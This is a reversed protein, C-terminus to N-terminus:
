LGNVIVKALSDAQNEKKIQNALNVGDKCSLVPLRSHNVVQQTFPGIFFQAHKYDLSANIAILDVSMQESLELVKSAYNSCTYKEKTCTVGKNIISAIVERLEDKPFTPITEKADTRLAAIHIAIAEFGFLSDILEYKSKLFQGPRAPFLINKFEAKKYGAPITIVPVLSNKIVNYSTTGIFFERTGSVGHAGMVILDVPLEETTRCIEDYPIGTPMHIQVAINHIEIISQYAQYLQTRSEQNLEILRSKASSDPSIGSTIYRSEIVHLLHLVAKHQKCLNIAIRLANNSQDSFDTPALINKIASRM